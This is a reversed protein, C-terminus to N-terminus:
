MFRRAVLESEVTHRMWRSAARVTREVRCELLLVVKETSAVVAKRLWSSKM